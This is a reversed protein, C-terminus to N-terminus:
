SAVRPFCFHGGADSMFGREGAPAADRIRCEQPGAVSFQNRALFAAVERAAVKEEPEGPDSAGGYSIVAWKWGLTLLLLLALVASWKLSPSWTMGRAMRLRQLEAM